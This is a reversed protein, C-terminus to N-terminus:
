ITQLVSYTPWIDQLEKLKLIFIFTKKGIKKNWLSNLYMCSIIHKYKCTRPLLNCAVM